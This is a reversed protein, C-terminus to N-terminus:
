YCPHSGSVATIESSSGRPPAPSRPDGPLVKGDSGETVQYCLKRKWGRKQQGAWVHWLSDSPCSCTIFSIMENMWAAADCLDLLESMLCMSSGAAVVFHNPNLASCRHVDSSASIIMKCNFLRSIVDGTRLTAKLLPSLAASAWWSKLNLLKIRLSNVLASDHQSRDSSQPTLLDAPLECISSSLEVLKLEVQSVVITTECTSKQSLFWQSKTPSVKFLPNSNGEVMLMPEKAGGHALMERRYREGMDRVFGFCFPSSTVGNGGILPRM